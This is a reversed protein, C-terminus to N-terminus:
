HAVLVFGWRLLAAKQPNGAVSTGQQGVLGPVNALLNIECSLVKSPFLDHPVNPSM